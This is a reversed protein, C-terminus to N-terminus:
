REGKQMFDISHKIMKYRFKMDNWMEFDCAIFPHAMTCGNKGRKSTLGIASVTDIWKSPTLTYSPSRVDMIFIEFASEDFEPNNNREWEGLFEITNRSRLWSQILYGPNNINFRRAIDTLSIYDNSPYLYKQVTTELCGIMKSEYTDAEGSIIMDMLHDRIRTWDEEDIEVKEDLRKLIEERTILYAWHLEEKTARPM